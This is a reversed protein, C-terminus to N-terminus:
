NGPVKSLPTSCNAKKAFPNNIAEKDDSEKDISLNQLSRELLTVEDERVM